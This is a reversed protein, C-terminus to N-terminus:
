RIKSYNIKNSKVQELAEAETCGSWQAIYFAVVGTIKKVKEADAIIFLENRFEMLEKIRAQHAWEMSYFTFTHNTGFHRYIRSLTDDEFNEYFYFNGDVEVGIGGKESACMKLMLENKSNIMRKGKQDAMMLM